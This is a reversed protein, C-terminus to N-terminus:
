FVWQILEGQRTIGASGDFFLYSGRGGDHLRFPRRICNTLFIAGFGSECDELLGFRKFM